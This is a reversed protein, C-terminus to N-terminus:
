TTGSLGARSSAPHTSASAPRPVAGRVAQRVMAALRAVLPGPEAEARHLTLALSPLAPLGAEGQALARVGAPLGIRTRVTLGLGAATAAWLGGLNPSTFAIRWPVGARDLAATAAGRFLCPAEFAVLPLAEGAPGPSAEGEGAPGIWRMALDAVREGGHPAGTGEGWVLALDLRGSTVRELLEANRTVRAEIRVKPHARAFRGLVEPLLVEGFDEPLGLRV